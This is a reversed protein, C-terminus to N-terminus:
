GKKKKQKIMLVIGLVLFAAAGGMFIYGTM